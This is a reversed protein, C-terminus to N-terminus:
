FEEEYEKSRFQKRPAGITFASSYVAEPTSSYLNITMIGYRGYRVGALVIYPHAYFNKILKGFPTQLRIPKENSYRQINIVILPRKSAYIIKFPSIDIFSNFDPCDPNSWVFNNYSMKELNFILFRANEDRFIVYERHVSFGYHCFFPLKSKNAYCQSNTDLFVLLNHTRFDATEYKTSKLSFVYKQMIIDTSRSQNANFLKINNEYYIIFANASPNPIHLNLFEVMGKNPNDFSFESKDIKVSRLKELSKNYLIFEYKKCCVLHNGSNFYEIKIVPKKPDDQMVFKSCNLEHIYELQPDRGYVFLELHGQNAVIIRNKHAAAALIVDQAAWTEKRTFETRFKSVSFIIVLNDRHAFFLQEGKM